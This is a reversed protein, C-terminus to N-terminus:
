QTRRGEVDLPAAKGIILNGTSDQASSVVPSLSPTSASDTSEQPPKLEVPSSRDESTAKPADHRAMKVMSGNGRTTGAKRKEGPNYKEDAEVTPHPNKPNKRGNGSKKIMGDGPSNDEAM